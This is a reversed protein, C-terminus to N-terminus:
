RSPTTMDDPAHAVDATDAIIQADFEGKACDDHVIRAPGPAIGAKPVLSKNLV